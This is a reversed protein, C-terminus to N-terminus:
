RAVPHLSLEEALLGDIEVTWVPVDLWVFGDERKLLVPIEEVPKEVGGGNSVLRVTMSDM